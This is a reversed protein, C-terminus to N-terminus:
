LINFVDIKLVADYLTQLSYPSGYEDLGYNMSVSSDKHGQLYDLISKEVNYSRGLAKFSHRFSHFTLTRDTLGISNMYRAFWKSVARPMTAQVANEGNIIPFLYKKGQIGDVYETFHFHGLLAPHLPVRRRSNTTKIFHGNELDAHIYIYSIGNETSVDTALLRCIEELRAGTYIGLLIIFSYERSKPNPPNTIVYSSTIEKIQKVSFPLRSPEYKKQARVRVNSVPNDTRFDNEVAYKFITGLLALYKGNITQPNVRECDADQYKEILKEPSLKLDDQKLFRPYQLLMDKYKM